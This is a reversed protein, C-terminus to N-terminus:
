IASRTCSHHRDIWRCGAAISLLRDGDSNGRRQSDPSRAPLRTGCPVLAERIPAQAQARVLDGKEVKLAKDAFGRPDTCGDSGDHRFPM